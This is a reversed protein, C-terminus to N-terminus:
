KHVRDFGYAKFHEAVMQSFLQPNSVTEAIEPLAKRAELWRAEAEPSDDGLFWCQSSWVDYQLHLLYEKKM